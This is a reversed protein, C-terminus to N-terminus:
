AVCLATSTAPPTPQDTTRDNTPPHQCNLAFNLSEPLSQLCVHGVVVVVVLSVPRSMSANLNRSFPVIFNTSRDVGGGSDKHASNRFVFVCVCERFYISIFQINRIFRNNHLCSRTSICIHMHVPPPVTVQGLTHTPLLYLM